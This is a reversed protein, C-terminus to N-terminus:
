KVVYKRGDRIYVGRQPKKCAHGDVVTDGQLFLEFSYLAVGYPQYYWKKGEELLARSGMSTLAFFCFVACLSIIKGKM